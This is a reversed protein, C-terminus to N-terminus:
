TLLRSNQSHSRHTHSRSVIPTGDVNMMIRLAAAKTLIHGVKSKLQSSFVSRRFHFHSQALQVGSASLFRDTERLHGGGFPISLSGCKAWTIAELNGELLSKRLDSLTLGVFCFVREATASDAPITLFQRDM